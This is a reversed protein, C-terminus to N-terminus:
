RRMRRTSVLGAGAVALLALTTPEPVNAQPLSELNASPAPAQHAVENFGTVLGLTDRSGNAALRSTADGSATACVRRACRARRSISTDDSGIVRMASAAPKGFTRRKLALM